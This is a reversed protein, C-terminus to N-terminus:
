SSTRRQFPFAYECILRREVSNPPRNWARQYCDEVEQWMDNVFQLLEESADAYPRVSAPVERDLWLRRVEDDSFHRAPNFGAEIALAALSAASLPGDGLYFTPSDSKAVAGDLREGSQPAVRWWEDNADEAEM